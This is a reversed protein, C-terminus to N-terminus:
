GAVSKAGAVRGGGSCGGDFGLCGDSYNSSRQGVLRITSQRDVEYNSSGRGDYPSSGRQGNREAM